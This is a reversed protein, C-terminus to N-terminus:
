TTALRVSRVHVPISRGQLVRPLVCVLCLKADCPAQRVDLGDMLREIGDEHIRRETRLPAMGVAWEQVGGKSRAADDVRKQVRLGFGVHSAMDLRREPLDRVTKRIRKRKGMGEGEVPLLDALDVHDDKAKFHP